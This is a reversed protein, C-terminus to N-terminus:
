LTKSFLKVKDWNTFEFEGKLDTPGKGIWMIFRIIHRDFFGYQSYHIKGAFVGLKAPKWNTIELFKQMYPNTEPENKEPKRAVVNVTFFAHQGSNLFNLNQDIYDFLKKNHKGYRISAGIIIMEYKNLSINKTKPLSIIDIDLDERFSRIRECIHMTHGDVSSHIILIKTM